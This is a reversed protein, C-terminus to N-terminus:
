AAPAPAILTDPATLTRLADTLLRALDAAPLGMVEASEHCTLGGYACLGLAVRQDDPLQHVQDHLKHGVASSPAEDVLPRMATWALHTAAALTPLSTRRDLHTVIVHVVIQEALENDHTLTSALALLAAGHEDHLAEAITRHDLMTDRM